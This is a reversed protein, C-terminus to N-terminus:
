GMGTHQVYGPELTRAGVTTVGLAVREKGLAQVLIEINGLCGNQLTLAIGHPNLCKALQAAARHTQWSKVLVLAQTFNAPCNSYDLVEVPHQELNGDM